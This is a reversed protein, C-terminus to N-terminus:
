VFNIMKDSCSQLNDSFHDTWDSAVRLSRCWVGVSADLSRTSRKIGFNEYLIACMRKGSAFDKMYM